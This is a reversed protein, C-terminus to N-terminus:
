DMITLLNNGSTSTSPRNEGKSRPDLTAPTIMPEKTANDVGLAGNPKINVLTAQTKQSVCLNLLMVRYM